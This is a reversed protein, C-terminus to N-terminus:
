ITIASSDVNKKINTIITELFNELDEIAIKIIKTKNNKKNVDYFAVVLQNINNIEVKLHGHMLADRFRRMVYDEAAYPNQANSRVHNDMDNQDYDFLFINILSFDILENLVDGNNSYYTTTQNRATQSVKNQELMYAILWSKLLAFGIRNSVVSLADEDRIEKVISSLRKTDDSCLLYVILADNLYSVSTLVNSIMHEPNTILRVIDQKYPNDFITGNNPIGYKVCVSDLQEFTIVSDLPVETIELEAKNDSICKYFEDLGALLSSPIKKMVHENNFGDYSQNCSANPKIHVLNLYDTKTDKKLSYLLVYSLNFPIGINPNASYFTLVFDHIVENIVLGTVTKNPDDSDANDVSYGILCGTDKENHFSSYQSHAFANRIINIHDMVDFTSIKSPYYLAIKRDNPIIIRNKVKECGFFYNAANRLESPTIYRHSETDNNIHNLYSEINSKSIFNGEMREKNLTLMCADIFVQLRSLDIVKLGKCTNIIENIDVGNEYKEKYRNIADLIAFIYNQNEM